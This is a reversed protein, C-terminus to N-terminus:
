GSRTSSILYGVGAAQSRHSPGAVRWLLRGRNGRRRGQRAGSMVVAMMFPRFGGCSVARVNIRRVGRSGAPQAQVAFAGRSESLAFRRNQSNGGGKELRGIPRFTETHM